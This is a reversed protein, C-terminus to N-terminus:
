NGKPTFGLVGNIINNLDNTTQEVWENTEHITLSGIGYTLFRAATKTDLKPKAGNEILIEIIQEFYPEIVQLVQERIALRVTRHIKKDYKVRFKKVIMKLYHFFHYVAHEPDQKAMKVVRKFGRHYQNLFTELVDTFLADKTEYYYYFLGIECGVGRVISRISTGDYGNEFFLETAVEIMKNKTGGDYMPKRAM